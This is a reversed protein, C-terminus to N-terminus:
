AKVVKHADARDAEKCANVLRDISVRLSAMMARRGRPTTEGRTVMATLTALADHAVAMADGKNADGKNADGKNADGKNALVPAGAALMAAALDARNLIALGEVARNVKASEMSADRAWRDAVCPAASKDSILLAHYVDAPLCKALRRLPACYAAISAAKVGIAIM